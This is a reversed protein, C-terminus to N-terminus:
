GADVRRRFVEVAEALIQRNLQDAQDLDGQWFFVESLMQQAALVGYVNGAAGLLARAELAMTRPKWSGAPM